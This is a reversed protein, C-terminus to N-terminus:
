PADELPLSGVAGAADPPLTPAHVSPSHAGNEGWLDGHPTQPNPPNTQAGEGYLDENERAPASVTFRSVGCVGCVRWRRVKAHGDDDALDLYIEDDGFRMQRRKAFAKGLRKSLSRTKAGLDFESPIADHLASTEDQLVAVVENTKFPQDAFYDGLARVFVEWEISEEDVLALVQELNELFGM